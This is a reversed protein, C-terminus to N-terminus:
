FGFIYYTPVASAGLGTISFTGMSSWNTVGKSAAFAAQAGPLDAYSSSLQQNIWYLLRGNWDGTPVSFYDFLASWDSNYDLATGTVGRVSQQRDGQTTGM